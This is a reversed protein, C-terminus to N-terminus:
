WIPYGKKKKKGFQTVRLEIKDAAIDAVMNDVKDALKDVEM